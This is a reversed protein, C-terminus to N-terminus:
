PNYGFVHLSINKHWCCFGLSMANNIKYRDFIFSNPIEGLYIIGEMIRNKRSKINFTFLEYDDIFWTLISRFWGIKNYIHIIHRCNFLKNSVCSLWDSIDCFGGSKPSTRLASSGTSPHIHSENLDYVLVFFFSFLNELISTDTLITFPARGKM